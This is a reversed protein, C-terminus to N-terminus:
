SAYVAYRPKAPTFQATAQAPELQIAISLFDIKERTGAEGASALGGVFCSVNAWAPLGLNEAYGGGQNRSLALRM